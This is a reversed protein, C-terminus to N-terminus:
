PLDELQGIAMGSAARRRLARAIAPSTFGQTVLRRALRDFREGPRTAELKRIARELLEEENTDAEAIIERALGSDIGQKILDRLLRMPGVPKRELLSTVFLQAFTRDDVYRRRECEAVVNRIVESAFGRDRLKKALQAKSLRKSALLRLATKFVPPHLQAGQGESEAV